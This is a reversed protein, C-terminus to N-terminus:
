PCLSCLDLSLRGTCWLARIAICMKLNWVLPPCKMCYLTKTVSAVLPRPFDIAEGWNVLEYAIPRPSAIIIHNYTCLTMWWLEAVRPFAVHITGVDVLELPIIGCWEWWTGRNLPLFGDNEEIAKALDITLVSPSSSQVPLFASLGYQKPFLCEALERWQTPPVCLWGNIPQTSELNEHRLLLLKVIPAWNWTRTQRSLQTIVAPM